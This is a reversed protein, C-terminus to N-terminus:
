VTNCTSFRKMSLVRKSKYIKVNYFSKKPVTIHTIDLQATILLWSFRKRSVLVSYNFGTAFKPGQHFSKCRVPVIRRYLNPRSKMAYQQHSESFVFELCGQIAAAAAATSTIILNSPARYGSILARCHSGVCHGAEASASRSLVDGDTQLHEARPSQDAATAQPLHSARRSM